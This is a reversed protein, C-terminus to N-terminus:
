ESVQLVIRTIKDKSKEQKVSLSRIINPSDDKILGLSHKKSRPSPHRLADLLIKCAGYLNDEDMARKRYGYQRIISIDVQGLFENAPKDGYIALLNAATEHEKGRQSFHMRMLRNPSILDYEPITCKWIM